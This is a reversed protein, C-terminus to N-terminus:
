CNHCTFKCALFLLQSRARARMFAVESGFAARKHSLCDALMSGVVSLSHASAAFHLTKQDVFASSFRDDARAVASSTFAWSPVINYAVSRSGSPAASAALTGSIHIGIAPRRPSPQTVTPVVAQEEVLQQGLV